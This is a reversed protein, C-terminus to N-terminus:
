VSIPYSVMAAVAEADHNKLASQLGGIIQRYRAADGSLTEEIAQDTTKDQAMLRQTQGALTALVIAAIMAKSVQM